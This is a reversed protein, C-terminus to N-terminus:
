KLTECLVSRQSDSRGVVARLGEGLGFDSALSTSCEIM